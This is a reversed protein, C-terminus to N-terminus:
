VVRRKDVIVKVVRGDDASRLDWALGGNTFEIVDVVCDAGEQALFRDRVLRGCRNAKEVNKFCGVIEHREDEFVHLFYVTSPQITSIGTNRRQRKAARIETNHLHIDGETVECHQEIGEKDIAKWWLCGNAHHAHSFEEYCQKDVDDTENENKSAQITECYELRMIYCEANAEALNKYTQAEYLDENTSLNTPDTYSYHIRYVTPKPTSTETPSQQASLPRKVPQPQGESKVNHRAQHNETQTPTRKMTIHENGTTQHQQNDADELRIPNSSNRSPRSVDQDNLLPMVATGLEAKM